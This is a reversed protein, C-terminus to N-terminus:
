APMALAIVRERYTLSAAMRAAPLIVTPDKIALGALRHSLSSQLWDTDTIAPCGLVLAWTSKIIGSAQQVQGLLQTCDIGRLYHMSRCADLYYLLLLHETPTDGLQQLVTCAQALDKLVTGFTSNAFGHSGPYNVPLGLVKIGANPSWPKRPIRGWLSDEEM